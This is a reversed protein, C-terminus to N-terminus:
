DVTLTPVKANFMNPKASKNLNKMKKIDDENNVGLQNL